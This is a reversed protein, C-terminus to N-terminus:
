ATLPWTEIDANPAVGYGTRVETTALANDVYTSYATEFSYTSEEAGVETITIVKTGTLSVLDRQQGVELAM